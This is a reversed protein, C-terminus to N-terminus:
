QSEDETREIQKNRRFADELEYFYSRPLGAKNVDPLPPEGSFLKSWARRIQEPWAMNSSILPILDTFNQEIKQARELEVESALKKDRQMEFLPYKEDMGSKEWKLWCALILSFGAEKEAEQQSQPRWGISPAIQHLAKGIVDPDMGISAAVEGVTPERLFFRPYGLKTVTERIKATLEPNSYLREKFDKWLYYHSNEDRIEDKEKMHVMQAYISSRQKGTLRTVEAILDKAKIGPCKKLVTRVTASIEM